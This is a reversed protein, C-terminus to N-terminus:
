FLVKEKGEPPSLYCKCKCHNCPGRAPKLTMLTLGNIVASLVPTCRHCSWSHTQGDKLSGRRGLIVHFRCSALIEGGGGGGEWPDFLYNNANVKLLNQKALMHNIKFFVKKKFLLLFQCCFIRWKMRCFAMVASACASNALPRMVGQFATLVARVSSSIHGAKSLPSKEDRQEKSFAKRALLAWWQKKTREM